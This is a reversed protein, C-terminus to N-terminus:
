RSRAPLQSNRGAGRARMRPERERACSPLTKTPAQGFRIKEKKGPKMSALDASANKKGKKAPAAAPLMLSPLRPQAPANEAPLRAHERPLPHAGGEEEEEADPPVYASYIPKTQKASAGTDTYGPKIDIFAQERMTTLYARM